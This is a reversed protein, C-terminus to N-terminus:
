INHPKTNNIHHIVLKNDILLQVNNGIINKIEYPGKYKPGLKKNMGLKTQHNKVYVFDGVKYNPINIQKDYYKKSIVKNKILQQRALNQTIQIKQKLDNIYDDYSYNITPERTLSNPIFPKVGFLLEYPSYGTSSHVHSNYSFMAFPILEDWNNQKKNIYHKLYDKLTLHFRELGGNTQPHYPSSKLHITKFLKMLNKVLKSMFDTGQDSLIKKPIGFMTIFKTLKSAITKAEHNPIPVAYSFKTLDDQMTFIFKNGNETLPLPGVVDIALKEFARSSTSTIELPAKLPKFNVKNEQCSACRKIYNKIDKKMSEWKYNEKIRKYTRAFGSHGALKSDHNEELIKEIEEQTEPCIRKHQIIVPQVPTERFLYHIMEFFLEQRFGPKTKLKIIYLNGSFNEDMLEDKLNKLSNYVNQYTNRDFHFQKNICLYTKKTQNTLKCVSYLKTAESINSLDYNDKLFESYPNNENLDVSYFLVSPFHKNSDFEEVPIQPLKRNLYHFKIFDNFNEDTKVINVQVNRSLADVNSNLKGKKYVIKYDFESIKIRWRM